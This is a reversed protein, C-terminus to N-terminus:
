CGSGFMGDLIEFSSYTLKFVGSGFVIKYPSLGFFKGNKLGM